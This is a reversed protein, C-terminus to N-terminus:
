LTDALKVLVDASASVDHTLVAGHHPLSALAHRLRTANASGDAHHRSRLGLLDPYRDETAATFVDEDNLGRHAETLAPTAATPNLTPFLLATATARDTLDLGFWRQLQDPFFQVKIERRKGTEFLPTRQDAKLADTVRQDQTPHLDEGDLLRQRVTSYWGLADLLGLGVAAAAVWPLITVTGDAEPRAFVRDNSLLGLHRGGALLLATTTKGAGKAGFTLLAKGDKTVASTHLLTYGDGELRGWVMERAIRCAALSVAQPSLGAITVRDGDAQYAIGEDPSVAHVTGNADRTLHTAAKAYLTEGPPTPGHHVTGAIVEYLKPDVDASLHPLSQGDPDVAEANWWPGFYRAVWDTVQPTRSFVTASAAPPGLRTATPQSTM